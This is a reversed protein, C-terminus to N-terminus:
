EAVINASQIVSRWKAREEGVMQRFAAQTMPTPEVGAQVLEKQVAADALIAGIETAIRRQVREPTGNPAAVGVWTAIDIGKFGLDAMGPAGPYLLSPAASASSLIKIKGGELLGRIPALDSLAFDLRRSVLDPLMSATGKYPIHTMKTGTQLRIFEAGLHTMAGNGASGYALEQRHGKDILEGVARAGGDSATIIFLPIRGIMSLPILDEPKYPLNPMLSPNVTLVAPVVLLLTHGDPESKVVMDAAIMTSAGPKNEVIVQSNVAAGLRQAILRATRDVGGGPGYPVILRITKTPWSLEQAQAAGLGMLAGLLLVAKCVHRRWRSPAQSQCPKDLLVVSIM